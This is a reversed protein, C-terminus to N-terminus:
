WTNQPLIIVSFKSAIGVQLAQLHKGTVSITRKPPVKGRMFKEWPLM